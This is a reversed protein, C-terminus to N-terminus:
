HKRLTVAWGPPNLPFTIETGKPAHDFDRARSYFGTTAFAPHFWDVPTGVLLSVALFGMAPWRLWGGRVALVVLAGAFILAPVTRYRIAIGPQVSWDGSGPFIQRGAFFAAVLLAGYLILLRAELSGKWAAAAALLATAATFALPLALHHWAPLGFLLAYGHQGVLQGAGIQGGIFQANMLPQIGIPQGRRQGSMELFGIQVVACAAVVGLLVLVWRERTVLWRVAVVPALALCMPGTLGSLAVLGVDFARWAGTAPTAALAVLAAALALHWQAQTVNLHLESSYPVGVYLAAALLKVRDDPILRDLRGSFLLALPLVQAALAFATMILPGYILPFSVAVDAVLRDFSQLYGGDPVVLPRLRGMNYANPYWLAGDEAWFQPLMVADPRRTLMALCGVVVAAVRLVPSLTFAGARAQERLSSGPWTKVSQASLAEM